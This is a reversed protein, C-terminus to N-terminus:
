RKALGMSRSAPLGSLAAARSARRRRIRGKIKRRVLSWTSFSSGERVSIVSGTAFQAFGFHGKVFRQRRSAM